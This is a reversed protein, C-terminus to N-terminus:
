TTPTVQLRLRSASRYVNRTKEAREPQEYSHLPLQAARRSRSPTARMLRYELVSGFARTASTARRILAKPDVPHATEASSHSHSALSRCFRAKPDALAPCFFETPPVPLRGREHPMADKRAM